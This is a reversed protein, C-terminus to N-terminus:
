LTSSKHLSGGIHKKKQGIFKKIKKLNFLFTHVINNHLLFYLDGHEKLFVFMYKAISSLKPTIEIMTFM